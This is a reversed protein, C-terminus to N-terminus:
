RVEEDTDANLTVTRGDPLKRKYTLPYLGKLFDHLLGEKMNEALQRTYRKYGLHISDAEAEQNAKRLAFMQRNHEETVQKWRQLSDNQPTGSAHSVTDITMQIDGPEVVVLLPQIGFRFHYDILVKAMMSTDTHFEFKGNTIVVSDVTAATQPGTLPVLFIKKGELNPNTTVGHIRCVGTAQEGTKSCAAFMVVAALVFLYLIQKMKCNSKEKIVRKCRLFVVIGRFQWIMRVFNFLQGTDGVSCSQSNLSFYQRAALM